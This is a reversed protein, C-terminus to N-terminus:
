SFQVFLDIPQVSQEYDTDGEIATNLGEPDGKSGGSSGEGHCVIEQGSQANSCTFKM